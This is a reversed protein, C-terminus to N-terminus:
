EDKWEEIKMLMYIFTLVAVAMGGIGTAGQIDKTLIVYALVPGFCVALACIMTWLMWVKDPGEIIHIGWATPLDDSCQTVSENLKKPLRKLWIAKLMDSNSGAKCSKLWHLIVSRPVPGYPPPHHNPPCPDWQYADKKAPVSNKKLIHVKHRSELGFGVYCINVPKLLFHKKIRFGRVKNYRERIKKGLSVDNKVHTIDIEGLSQWLNGTNVCLELFLATPVSLPAQINVHSDDPM